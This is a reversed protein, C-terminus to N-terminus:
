LAQWAFGIMAASCTGIVLLAASRRRHTLTWLLVGSISLLLISGALTDVLLVWGISAADGKHLTTLTAIWNNDGRKVSVTGNGVWYESQVNMSASTFSATWRAPQRVSRDGWPVTRAPESRVRKAPRDIGLERQLWAALAEADAPPPNPLTVQLTTEATKAAPLKLVARHNLFIGTFGFLLGLTAGWLGIWGHTNRLWRVFALRRSAAAATISTAPATSALASM